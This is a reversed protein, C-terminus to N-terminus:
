EESEHVKDVYPCVIFWMIRIVHVFVSLRLKDSLMDHYRRHLQGKVGKIM